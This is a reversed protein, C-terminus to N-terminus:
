IVGYSTIVELRVRDTKTLKLKIYGLKREPSEWSLFEQAIILDLFNESILTNCTFSFIDDKADHVIPYIVIELEKFDVKSQTLKFNLKLNEKSLIPRLKYIIENLDFKDQNTETITYLECLSEIIHKDRDFDATPYEHCLLHNYLKNTHYGLGNLYNDSEGDFCNLSATLFRKYYSNWEDFVAKIENRTSLDDDYSNELLTTNFSYSKEVHEANEYFDYIGQSREQFRESVLNSNDFHGNDRFTVFVIKHTNTTFNKEILVGSPASVNDELTKVEEIIEDNLLTNYQNTNLSSILKDAFM